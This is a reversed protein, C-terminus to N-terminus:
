CKGPLRQCDEPLRVGEQSTVPGRGQRSLNSSSHQAHGRQSHARAWGM